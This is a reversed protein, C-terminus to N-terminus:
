EDTFSASSPAVMNKEVELFTQTM